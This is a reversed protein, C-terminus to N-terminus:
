TVPRAFTLSPLVWFRAFASSLSSTMESLRLSLDNLVSGRTARANYLFALQFQFIKDKGPIIFKMKKLNLTGNPFNLYNERATLDVTSFSQIDREGSLAGLIERVTKEDVFPLDDPPIARRIKAYAEHGILLTYYNEDSLYLAPTGDILVVRNAAKFHLYIRYYPKVKNDNREQPITSQTSEQHSLLRKDMANQNIIGSSKNTNELPAEVFPHNLSKQGILRQPETNNKEGKKSNLKTTKEEYPISDRRPKATIIIEDHAIERPMIVIKEEDDGFEERHSKSNGDCRPQIVIKNEEEDIDARPMIVIKNEHM